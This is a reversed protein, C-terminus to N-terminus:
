CSAVFSPQVVQTAPWICNCLAFCFTLMFTQQSKISVFDKTKIFTHQQNEWPINYQAYNHGGKKLFWTTSNSPPAVLISFPSPCSEYFPNYHGFEQQKRYYIASSNTWQISPFEILWTRWINWPKLHVQEPQSKSHCFYASSAMGLHAYGQWSGRGQDMYLSIEVDPYSWIVMQRMPSRSRHVMRGEAAVLPNCCFNVSM